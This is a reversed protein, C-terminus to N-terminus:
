YASNEEDNYRISRIIRELTDFSLPASLQYMVNEHRWVATNTDLNTVLYYTIGDIEFERRQEGDWEISAGYAYPDSPFIELALTLGKAGGDRYFASVYVYGNGDDMYFYDVPEYAEPKWAPLAPCRGTEEIMDCVDDGWATREAQTYARERTHNEASGSSLIDIMMKDRTWSIITEWVPIGLAQAAIALMLAICITVLVTKKISIGIHRHKKQQAASDGRYATSGEYKPSTSTADHIYEMIADVDQETTEVCSLGEDIVRKIADTKM